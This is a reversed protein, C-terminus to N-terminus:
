LGRTPFSPSVPWACDNVAHVIRHLKFVEKSKEQHQCSSNLGDRGLLATFLNRNTRVIYMSLSACVKLSAEKLMQEPGQQTYIVNFGVPLIESGWSSLVTSSCKGAPQRSAPM